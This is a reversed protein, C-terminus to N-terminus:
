EFKLGMSPVESELSIVTRQKRKLSFHPVLPKGAQEKEAQEQAELRGRALDSVIDGPKSASIISRLTKPTFFYAEDCLINTLRAQQSESSGMLDIMTERPPAQFPSLPFKCEVANKYLIYLLVLKFKREDIGKSLACSSPNRLASITTELAELVKEDKPLDNFEGKLLKRVTNRLNHQDLSKDTFVDGVEFGFYGVVDTFWKDEERELNEKISKVIEKSERFYVELKEATAIFNFMKIYPNNYFCRGEFTSNILENAQLFITPENMGFSVLISSYITIYSYLDAVYDQHAGLRTQRPLQGHQAFEKWSSVIEQVVIDPNAINPSIQTKLYDLIKKDDVESAGITLHLRQALHYLMSANALCSLPIRGEISANSKGIAKETDDFQFVDIQGEDNFALLPITTPMVAINQPFKTIANTTM